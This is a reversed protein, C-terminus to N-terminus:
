TGGWSFGGGAPALDSCAEWEATESDKWSGPSSTDTTSWVGRSTSSSLALSRRALTAQPLLGAEPRCRPNPYPLPPPPAPAPRWGARSARTSGFHVLCLSGM